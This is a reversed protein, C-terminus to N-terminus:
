AVQGAVLEGLVWAGADEMESRLAVQRDEITEIDGPTSALSASSMTQVPRNLSARSMSGADFIRCTASLDSISSAPAKHAEVLEHRTLDGQPSRPTSPSDDTVGLSRLQRQLGESPRPSNSLLM